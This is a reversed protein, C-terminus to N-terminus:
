DRLYLVEAIFPRNRFESLAMDPSFWYQLMGDQLYIISAHQDPLNNVANINHFQVNAGFEGGRRILGWTTGLFATVGTVLLGSAQIDQVEEALLPDGWKVVMGYITKGLLTNGTDFEIYFQYDRGFVEGELVEMKYELSKGDLFSVAEASTKVDVEKEVEGNDKNLLQM